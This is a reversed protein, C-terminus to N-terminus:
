EETLNLELNDILRTEGMFVALAILINGRLEEVDELTDRNVINLYDIRAEEASEITEEIRQKVKHAKREGSGILRAAEMLSKYLVSAQRRQETSLYENRSSIALGDQERIIPLVKIGVPLNLDRVMRKIILAQQADKQGFYAVDPLVINFLKLVVTTVGRFHTPRALGCLHKSLGTEEVYTSFNEPYMDGASPHFIIDAGAEEAMRKDREMDRPYRDFDEGPGFQTPNVFISVVVLESGARAARILSLHGEHLYGMTPVLGIKKGAGKASLSAARMESIDTILKM